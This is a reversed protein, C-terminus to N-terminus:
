SRSACPTARRSRAAACSGGVNSYSAHDVDISFTSRPAVTAALFPNEDIPDYGETNAPEGRRRIDGPGGRPRSTSVSKTTGILIATNEARTGYLASAATGKLISLTEIATVDVQELSVAAPKLVADVTVTDAYGRLPKVFPQYGIRRIVLTLERGDAVTAPVVFRYRGDATTNASVTAQRVSVLADAIPQKSNAHTVRGSVILQGEPTPERVSPLRPSPLSGAPVGPGANSRSKSAYESGRLPKATLRAPGIGRQGLRRPIGTTVPRAFADHRRTRRMEVTPLGDSATLCSAAVPLALPVGVLRGLM